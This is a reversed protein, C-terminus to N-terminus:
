FQHFHHERNLQHVKNTNALRWVNSIAEEFNEEDPTRMGARIKKILEQREQYSQPLKGEQDAKWSEVYKLIIVVFPVHGHDTQDLADLDITSVYDLLQQFPTALRLDSVNEPHSEIVLFQM